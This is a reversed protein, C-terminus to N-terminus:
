KKTEKNLKYYQQRMEPKRLVDILNKRAKQTEYFANRLEEPVKRPAGLYAGTARFLMLSFESSLQQKHTRKANSNFKLTM